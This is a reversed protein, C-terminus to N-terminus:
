QIETLLDAPSIDRGQHEITSLNAPFSPTNKSRKHDYMIQDAQAILQDLSSDNDPDISIRGFSLALDYSRNSQQNYTLLNEQLRDTVNDMDAASSDQAMIAFEDGGVRGIIDSERFSNRLIDAITAIALSGETHGFSDNIRKLGDVDAYILLSHQGLRRALKLYHEALTYFGRNNYLGTLDDHLALDRMAQEAKERQLIAAELEQVRQALEADRKQLEAEIRKQETVDRFFWVRGYLQGSMSVVPASYRDLVRGDNLKIEERSKEDPHEYLYKIRELFEPPNALLTLVAGLATEDSRTELAPAPVNWIEVFHQNFSLIEGDVSVVLIGDISAESQAQLLSEKFSLTEELPKHPTEM